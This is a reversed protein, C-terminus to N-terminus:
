GKSGMGDVFDYGEADKNDDFKMVIINDMV